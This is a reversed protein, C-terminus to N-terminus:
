VMVIKYEMMIMWLHTKVHYFLSSLISLFLQHQSLIKTRRLSNAGVTFIIVCPIGHVLIM